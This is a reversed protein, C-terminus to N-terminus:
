PLSRSPRKSRHSMAAQRNEIVNRWPPVVREQRWGMESDIVVACPFWLGEYTRTHSCARFEVNGAQAGVVADEVDPRSNAVERHIQNSVKLPTVVADINMSFCDGPAASGDRRMMRSVAKVVSVHYTTRIVRVSALWRRSVAERKRVMGEVHNKKRRYVRVKERFISLVVHVFDGPQKCWAAEAHGAVKEQIRLASLRDVSTVTENWKGGAM